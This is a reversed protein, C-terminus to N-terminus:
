DQVSLLYSEIEKGEVEESQLLSICSGPNIVLGLGQM